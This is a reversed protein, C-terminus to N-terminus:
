EGKGQPEAERMLYDAEAQGLLNGSWDVLKDWASNHVGLPEGKSAEQQLTEVVADITDSDLNDFGNEALASRLKAAVAVRECQEYGEVDHAAWSM